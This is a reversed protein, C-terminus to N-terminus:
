KFLYDYEILWTNNSVDDRKEDRAIYNLRVQQACGKIHYNLGVTTFRADLQDTVTDNADFEEYGAVLELKGEGCCRLPHAVHIYWGDAHIDDGGDADLSKRLYGAYATTRGQRYLADVGWTQEDVSRTDYLDQYAYAKGNKKLFKQYLSVNVDENNAWFLGFGLDDTVLWEARATTMLGGGARLENPGDGLFAGAYWGFGHACDREHLLLGIDRGPVLLRVPVAREALPLKVDSTPFVRDFPTIMQGVTVDAFDWGAYTAYLDHLKFEDMGWDRRVQGFALWDESLQRAYAVRIRRTNYDDSGDRDDRLLWTPRGAAEQTVSYRPQVRVVVGEPRPRGPAEAVPCKYYSPPWLCQALAGTASLLVTVAWLVARISNVRKM